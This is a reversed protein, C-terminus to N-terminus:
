GGRETHPMERGLALSAFVSAYRWCAPSLVLSVRISVEEMEDWVSFLDIEVNDGHWLIASRNRSRGRGLEDKIASAILLTIPHECRVM